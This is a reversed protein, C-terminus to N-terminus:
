SRKDEKLKKLDNASLKTAKMIKEEDVDHKLLNKAIECATQFGIEERITDFINEMNKEKKYL